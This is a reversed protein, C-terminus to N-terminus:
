VREQEPVPIRWVGDVKRAGPLRGAWLQQYIWM